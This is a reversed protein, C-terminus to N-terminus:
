IKEYTDSEEVENPLPIRIGHFDLAWQRIAELYREFLATDLRTTSEVYLQGLKGRKVLFIGRLEDHLIGKESPHYGCEDCLM